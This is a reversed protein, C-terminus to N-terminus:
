QNKRYVTRGHAAADHPMSLEKGDKSVELVIPKDMNKAVSKVGASNKMTDAKALLLRQAEAVPKGAVMETNLTLTTGSLNWSGTVELNRFLERFHHEKDFSLTAGPLTKGDDGTFKGTWEGVIPSESSSCGVLWLCLLSLLAVRSLM